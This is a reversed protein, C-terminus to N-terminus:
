GRSKAEDYRKLLIDEISKWESPTITLWKSSGRASRMQIKLDEAEAPPIPCAAFLENEIYNSM